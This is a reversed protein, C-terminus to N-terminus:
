RMIKSEVEAVRALASGLAGRTAPSWGTPQPTMSGSIRPRRCPAGSQSRPRSGGRGSGGSPQRSPPLWRGAVAGAGAVGLLARSTAECDDHVRNQAVPGLEYDILPGLASVSASDSEWSSRHGLPLLRRLPNQQMRGVVPRSRNEVLRGAYGALRTMHSILVCLVCADWLASV